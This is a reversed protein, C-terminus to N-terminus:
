DGFRIRPDIAAYLLDVIFNTFVVVCAIFMVLNQVIPYDRWRLAEVLFRAIGPINFVTETVILGGILFAVSTIAVPTGITGMRGVAWGVQALANALRSWM